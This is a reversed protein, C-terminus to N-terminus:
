IFKYVLLFSFDPDGFQSENVLCHVREIVEDTFTKTRSSDRVM